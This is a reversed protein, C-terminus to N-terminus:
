VSGGQSVRMRAAIDLFLRVDEAADFVDCKPTDHETICRHFELLENAFMDHYQPGYITSKAQGDELETVTLRSPLYRIYPSDYELLMKRDGQYIEIAEDFEVIQQDNMEEFVMHFGEYELILTFQMGSPSVAAAHIAKPLGILEWVASLIHCGSATLLLYALIQAQTANGGLIRNYDAFMQRQMEERGSPDLDDAKKEQRTNRLYWPGELIITRARVYSIPRPDRELLEKMKLFSDNYRRCYGVMAVLDPHKQKIDMLRNANEMDVTMPKEIFVHKGAELAAAAYQTHDGPSLIMVADVDPCHILDMGDQFQYPVQYKEAIYQTLHPSIDAAATIKFRDRMNDLNPLHLIQAAQGLGILGLRVM